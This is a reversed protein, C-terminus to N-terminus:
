LPVAVLPESWQSAAALLAWLRAGGRRLSNRVAILPEMWRRVREVSLYQVPRGGFGRNFREISPIM